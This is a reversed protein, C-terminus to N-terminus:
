RTLVISGIIIVLKPIEKRCWNEIGPTKVFLGRKQGISMSRSSEGNVKAVEINEINKM